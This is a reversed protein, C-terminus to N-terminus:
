PCELAMLWLLGGDDRPVCTLSGVGCPNAVVALLCACDLTEACDCAAPLSLCQNGESAELCYSAAGNCSVAGCAFSAGAPPTCGAADGGAAATAADPNTESSDIAGGDHVGETDSADGNGGGTSSDNGGGTGAESGGHNADLTGAELGGADLTGADLTSADAASGPSGGAAGGCGYLGFAIWLAFRTRM